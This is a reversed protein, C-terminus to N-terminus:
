KKGCLNDPNVLDLKFPFYVREVDVEENDIQASYELANNIVKNAQDLLLLQSTLGNNEDTISLKNLIAILISKNEDLSVCNRKVENPDGLGENVDAVGACFFVDPDTQSLDCTNSRGPGTELPFNTLWKWFGATWEGYTKGYINDGTHWQPIPANNQM